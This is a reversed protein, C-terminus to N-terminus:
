RPATSIILFLDSLLEFFAPMEVLIGGVDDLGLLCELREVVINRCDM